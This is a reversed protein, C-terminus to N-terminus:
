SGLFWLKPFWALVTLSGQKWQLGVEGCLLEGNFVMGAQGLLDERVTSVLCPSQVETSFLGTSGWPSCTQDAAAWQSTWLAAQLRPNGSSAEMPEQPVALIWYIHIHLACMIISTAKLQWWGDACPQTRTTGGRAKHDLSNFVM